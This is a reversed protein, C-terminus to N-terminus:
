VSLSTPSDPCAGIDRSVRDLRPRTSASPEASEDFVETRILITTGDVFFQQYAAPSLDVGPAIPDLLVQAGATSAEFITAEHGGVTGTQPEM